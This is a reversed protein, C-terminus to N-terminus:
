KTTGAPVAGRGAMWRGAVVGVTASLLAVALLATLTTRRRRAASVALRALQTARTGFAAAARTVTVESIPAPTRLDAAARAAEEVVDNPINFPIGHPDDAQNPPGAPARVTLPARANVAVEGSPAV